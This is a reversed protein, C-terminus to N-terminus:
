SALVGNNCAEGLLECHSNGTAVKPPTSASRLVTANPVRGENRIPAVKDSRLDSSRQSAHDEVMQDSTPSSATTKPLALSALTTSADARQDYKTKSLLHIKQSNNPEKKSRLIRICWKINSM